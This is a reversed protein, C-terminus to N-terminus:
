VRRRNRGVVRGGRVCGFGACRWRALGVSAVTPAAWLHPIEALVGPSTEQAEDAVNDRRSTAITANSLPLMVCRTFDLVLQEAQDTTRIRLAAIGTPYRNPKRQNERLGIVETETYLTDGILPWRRLALGRYSLNAKARQSFHTSQGIATDWVLAPNAMQRQAGSTRRCLEADLAIPLRNGVISQHMASIGATLTIGLSRFSEGVVLDDFYPGGPRPHHDASPNMSTSLSGTAHSALYEPDNSLVEEAAQDREAMARQSRLPWRSCEDPKEYTYSRSWVATWLLSVTVALSVKTLRLSSPSPPQLRTPHLGLSKTPAILRVQTPGGSLDKPTRRIM